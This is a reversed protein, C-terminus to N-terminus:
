CSNFSNSNEVPGIKAMQMASIPVWEVGLKTALRLWNEVVNLLWCSRVAGDALFVRVPHKQMHLFSDLQIDVRPPPSGSSLSSVQELPVVILFGASYGFVFDTGQNARELSILHGGCQIDISHGRPNADTQSLPGDLSALQNMISSIVM